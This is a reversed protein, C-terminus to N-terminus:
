GWIDQRGERAVFGVGTPKRNQETRRVIIWSRKNLKTNRPLARGVPQALLEM